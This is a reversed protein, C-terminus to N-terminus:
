NYRRSKPADLTCNERDEKAKIVAHTSEEDLIDQFLERVKNIDYYNAMNTSIFRIMVSGLVHSSCGVDAKKIDKSAKNMMKEFKKMYDDVIDWTRDMKNKKKKAM